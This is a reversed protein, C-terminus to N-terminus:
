RDHTVYAIAMLKNIDDDTKRRELAKELKIRANVNEM